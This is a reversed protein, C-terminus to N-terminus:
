ETEVVRSRLTDQRSKSRTVTYVGLIVLIGAILKKYDFLELGMALAATTTIIPSVYNYMAIVTPRLRKQGIPLLFYAVFTSLVVVFALELYNIRPLTAWSTELIPRYSFPLVIFFSILFLWKMLEVPSYKLILNRFLTLYLTYNFTAFLSLIMGWSSLAGGSAGETGKSFLLLLVGACGLFVGFVKTRTIPEKLFIAALIMAFIPGFTAMLSQRIPTTMSIAFAFGGQNFIVGSVAAGLILWLDERELRKDNRFFSVIWFLLASVGFRASMHVWPSLIGTALLDNSFPGNLGFILTAGTIAGHGKLQEKTM